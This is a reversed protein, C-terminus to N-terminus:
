KAKIHEVLEFEQGNRFVIKVLGMGQKVYTEAVEEQEPYCEYHYVNELINGNISLTDLKIAHGLYFYYRPDFYSVITGGYPHIVVYINKETRNIDFSTSFEETNDFYYVTLGALCYKNCKDGDSPTRLSTWERFEKLPFYLLSDNVKNKLYLTDVNSYPFWSAEETTLKPCAPNKCCSNLLLLLVVTIYFFTNKM